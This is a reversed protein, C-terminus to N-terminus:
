SLSRQAPLKPNSFFPWALRKPRPLFFALFCIIVPLSVPRYLIKLSGGFVLQVDIKGKGSFKMVFLHHFMDIRGSKLLMLSARDSNFADTLRMVFLNFTAEKEKKELPIHQLLCSFLVDM